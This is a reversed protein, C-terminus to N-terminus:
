RKVSTVLYASSRSIRGWTRGTCDPQYICGHNRRAWILLKSPPSTHKLSFKLANVEHYVCSPNSIQMGSICCAMQIELYRGSGSWETQDDSAAEYKMWFTPDSKYAESWSKIEESDMAIMMSPPRSM